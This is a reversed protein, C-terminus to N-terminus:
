FPESVTQWTCHRCGGAVSPMRFLHGCPALWPLLLVMVKDALGEQPPDQSEQSPRATSAHQKVCALGSRAVATSPGLSTQGGLRGVSSQRQSALFTTPPVASFSEKFQLWRRDKIPAAEMHECFSAILADLQM